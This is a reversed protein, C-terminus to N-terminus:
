AVGVINRSSLCLFMMAFGMVSLSNCFSNILTKLKQNQFHVLQVVGELMQAVQHMNQFVQHFEILGFLGM